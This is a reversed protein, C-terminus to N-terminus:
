LFHLPHPHFLQSMNPVKFGFMVPEKLQLYTLAAAANVLATTRKIAM